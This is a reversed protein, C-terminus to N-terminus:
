PALRNDGCEDIDPDADCVPLQCHAEAECGAGGCHLCCLLGDACRVDRGEDCVDGAPRVHCEATDVCGRIADFVQTPGCVCAPADCLAACAVGCHPSCCISETWTGGTDGCLVEPAIPDVEPCLADDFCGTGTAFSRSAGCNCVPMGVLCESPLPVGCAFHHCEEAFFLWEGGTSTCLAPECTAHAAVCAEMSHAALGCDAGVCTGCDIMVCREGDWVYDDLGDCVGTPCVIAQADAAACSAPPVGTDPLPGVDLCACADSVMGDTTAADAVGADSEDDRTHSLCAGLLSAGLAVILVSRRHAM